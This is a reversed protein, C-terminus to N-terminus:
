AKFDASSEAFGFIRESGGPLISAFLVRMLIKIKGEILTLIELIALKQVGAGKVPITNMPTNLHARYRHHSYSWKEATHAAPPM